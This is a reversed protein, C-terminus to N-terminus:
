KQFFKRIIKPGVFSEIKRERFAETKGALNPVFSYPKADDILEIKYEGPINGLGMFLQPYEQVVKDLAISQINGSEYSKRVTILNLSKIATIGLLPESLTPIVYIKEKVKQGNFELDATFMGDVVMINQDANKLTKDSKFLNPIQKLINSPIATVEARSDLKAKVKQNNIFIDVYWANSVGGITNLAGLYTADDEQESVSIQSSERLEGIKKTFKGVITNSKCMKKFHGVKGCKCTYDKAPCSNRPHRPGGCNWCGGEMIDTTSEKLPFKSSSSSHIRDVESSPKSQIEELEYTQKKISERQKAKQIAKELTLDADEQLQSSLTKDLIGVVIRDRVLEDRLDRFACREAMLSIDTLFQEFIEGKKQNRSNFKAREYLINRKGIFAEDFAAKVTKYSNLKEEPLQSRTLIDEANEGMCYILSTVQKEEPEQDLGSAMRYREFRKFWKEWKEPCQFDFQAPPQFTIHRRGVSSNDQLEGFSEDINKKNKKRSMFLKAPFLILTASLVM